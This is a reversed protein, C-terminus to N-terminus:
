QVPQASRTKFKNPDYMSPATTAGVQPIGLLENYQRELASITDQIVKAEEDSAATLAAEKLDDIRKRVSEAQRTRETGLRYLAQERGVLLQRGESLLDERREKEAKQAATYAKLGAIGGEGVAGLFSSDKSSMMAFGAQMLAQNLASKRADEKGSRREEMIEKYLDMLADGGEALDAEAGQQLFSNVKDQAQTMREERAEAAKAGEKKEFRRPTTGTGEWGESLYPGSALRGEPNFYQETEADYRWGPNGPVEVGRQYASDIRMLRAKEDPDEAREASQAYVSVGNQVKPLEPQPEAAPVPEPAQAPPMGEAAQAEPLLGMLGEAAQGLFPVAEEAGPGEPAMPAMEEGRQVPAVPSFGPAYEGGQMPRTVQPLSTIGADQARGASPMSLPAQEGPMMAGEGRVENEGLARVRSAYDSAQSDSLQDVGEAGMTRLYMRDDSTDAETSVDPVMVTSGAMKEALSIAEADSLQGAGIYGFQALLSRAEDAGVTGGMQYRKGKTSYRLDPKGSPCGTEGTEPNKWCAEAEGKQYATMGGKAFSVLGGSYMGQQPAMNPAPIAAIGGMIEDAVTGQSQPENPSASEERMKKRRQMEALVLYQPSSGAQMTQLLQSDSLDKLDNQLKVINM